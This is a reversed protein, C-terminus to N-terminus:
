LDGFLDDSQPQNQIPDQLAQKLGEAPSSSVQVEWPGKLANKHKVIVQFSVPTEANKYRGVRVTVEQVGNAFADELLKELM